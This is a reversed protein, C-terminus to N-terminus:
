ESSEVGFVIEHFTQGSIKFAKIDWINSKNFIIFHIHDDSINNSIDTNSPYGPGFPHSHYIGLQLLNNKQLEYLAKIYEDPDFIFRSQDTSINTISVSGSIINQTGFLIGCTESPTAEQASIILLDYVQHHLKLNNIKNKM